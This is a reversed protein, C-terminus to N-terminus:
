KENKIKNKKSIEDGHQIKYRTQYEYQVEKIGRRKYYCFQEIKKSIKFFFFSMLEVLTCDVRWFCFHITSQSISALAKTQTIM